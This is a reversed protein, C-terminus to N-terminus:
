TKDIFPAEVITVRGVQVSVINDRELGALAAPYREDAAVLNRLQEDQLAGHKALVKIIQGRVQRVSGELPSQIRYHRSRVHAKIGQSKLYTGYDMLAWYFKRPHTRDLTALLEQMIDADTVADADAFLHHLYVTRVNTEIFVSPRNYAYAAIAGATNKGVGPLRLLDADSNPFRGCFEDVIMRAARWLFQARRNYGLGQWVVLVEALSARALAFEDPFVAIFQEFKPIVRGVQTQQLMLESVLVYYPRTDLRWPMDRYLEIGKQHILRQFQERNM